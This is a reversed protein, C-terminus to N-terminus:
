ALVRTRGQGEFFNSMESEFSIKALEGAKFGSRDAEPEYAVFKSIAKSKRGILSKGLKRCSGACLSGSEQM